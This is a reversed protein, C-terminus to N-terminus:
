RDLADLIALLLTGHIWPVDEGRELAAEMRAALDQGISWLDRSSVFVTEDASDHGHQRDRPIKM